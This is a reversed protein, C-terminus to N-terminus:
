PKCRTKGREIGNSSCKLAQRKDNISCKPPLEFEPERKGALLPKLKRRVAETPQTPWVNSWLTIYVLIESTPFNGDSGLLLVPHTATPDENVAKALFTQSMGSARSPDTKGPWPVESLLVGDIYSFPIIELNAGNIGPLGYVVSTNTTPRYVISILYNQGWEAPFIISGDFPDISFLESSGLEIEAFEPNMPNEPTPSTYRVACSLNEQAIPFNLLKPKYFAFEYSVWLEGIKVGAKPIGVTALFIKCLDYLRLDGVEADLPGVYLHTSVSTQSPACEIPMILSMSPKCSGANEMNEMTQKTAPADALVNYDATMIVTGLSLTTSLDSATTKFEVLMGRLQYEQFNGAINSLWPFLLSNAPNLNYSELTFVTSDFDENEYNGSEVDKIFERHSVVFAEGRATNRVRPVTGTLDICNMLSNRRVKYAGTGTVDSYSGGINGSLVGPIGWSLGGSLHYAGNGTALATTSPEVQPPTKVKRPRRKRPKKQKPVIVVTKPKNYKVNKRKGKPAVKAKNVSMM